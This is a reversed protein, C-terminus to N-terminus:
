HVAIFFVIFKQIINQLWSNLSKCAIKMIAYLMSKIKNKNKLLFCHTDTFAPPVNSVCSTSKVGHISQEIAVMEHVLLHRHGLHHYQKPSRM